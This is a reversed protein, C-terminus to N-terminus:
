GSHRTERGNETVIRRGVVGTHNRRRLSLASHILLVTFLLTGGALTMPPVAEGVALWAGLPGLVMELLMIMNVEPASIHRPAIFLLMFSVPLVIIILSALYLSKISLLPFAPVLSEAWPLSAAAMLLGSVVMCPVMNVNPRSRILVFTGAMFVAQILALVDGFLGSDSGGLDDSMIVVVAAASLVVAIWTRLPVREKLFLATLLAGYIPATGIIALTDAVSTRYVSGVFLLSSIAYGAGALVGVLGLARFAAWTGRGYVILMGLLLTGAIGVGRYFQLTWQEMGLLRVLVVDPSLIVIGAFALMYGRLASM